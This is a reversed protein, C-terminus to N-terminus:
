SVYIKPDQGYTYETRIKGNRGHVKIQSPKVQKARSRANNIAGRQTADTSVPTANGERKVQWNQNQKNQVVHFVTRTAM